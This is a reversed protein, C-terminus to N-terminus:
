ENEEPEADSQTESNKMEELETMMDNIGQNSVLSLISTLILLQNGNDSWVSDMKQM